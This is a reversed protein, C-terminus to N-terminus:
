LYNSSKCGYSSLELVPRRRVCQIVKAMARLREPGTGAELQVLSLISRLTRPFQLISCLLSNHKNEREEESSGIKEKGGSQAM